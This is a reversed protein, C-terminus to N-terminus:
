ATELKGGEPEVATKRVAGIHAISKRLADRCALWDLYDAAYPRLNEPQEWRVALGEAGFDWLVPVTRIPTGFAAACFDLHARVAERSPSGVPFAITGAWARPDDTALLVGKWPSQWCDPHNAAAPWRRAGVVAGPQLDLAM